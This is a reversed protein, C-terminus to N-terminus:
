PTNLLYKELDDLVANMALVDFAYWNDSDVLYVRNQQVAKLQRWLPNKQLKQLSEKAGKGGRYSLFIVDGDVESLLEQSIKDKTFFDGTQMPPRQLGIDHLLKGTPHKKGYTFIGYPPNVTIVSVQMQHRKNGLAQKIKEIRQWYQNILQKKEREKGFINAINELNEQWPPPPSSINVVVTPAIASLRQYLNRLRTNSVILDPKISLIKELNPEAITGVYKISDGGDLYEPFAEDPIWTSAIPKIGLAWASSLSGLWMTVVRQPNRPICTSGMEHKVIRCDEVPQKHSTISTNTTPNCASVLIVTFVGLLLLCIFRHVSIRM